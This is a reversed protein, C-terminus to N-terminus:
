SLKELTQPQQAAHPHEPGAYIKLKKLMDRGLTSKPLMRRVAQHIVQDPRRELLSAYTETIKGGPYGTVRRYTKNVAKAGTVQIKECNIVIVGDGSDYHPSYTPRHKGMLVVAIDRALRGLVQGEADVLCWQTAHEQPTRHPTIPRM